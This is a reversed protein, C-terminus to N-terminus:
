LLQSTIQHKVAKINIQYAGGEYGVVIHDGADVPLTVRSNEYRWILKGTCKFHDFQAARNQSVM